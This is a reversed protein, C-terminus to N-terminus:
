GYLDFSSTGDREGNWRCINRTIPFSGGIFILTQSVGPTWSLCHLERLSLVCPGRSSFDPQTCMTCDKSGKITLKTRDLLQVLGSICFVSAGCQDALRQMGTVIDEYQWHSNENLAWALFLM